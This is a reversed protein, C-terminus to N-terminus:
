NSIHDYCGSSVPRIDAWVGRLSVESVNEKFSGKFGGSELPKSSQDFSRM